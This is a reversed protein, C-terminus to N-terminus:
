RSSAVATLEDSRIIKNQVTCLATNYVKIPTGEVLKVIISKMHAPTRTGLLIASIEIGDQIFEKESLTREEEEYEWAKNKNSLLIHAFSAESIAPNNSPSLLANDYTVHARRFDASDKLVTAEFCIGKFGDAYHAWMLIHEFTRSFSCIRLKRKQKVIEDVYERKDRPTYSFLGEMPDNLDFFQAAYFRQNLVIDAVFEFNNLSRFKYLTLPENM